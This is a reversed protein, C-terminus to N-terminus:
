LNAANGTPRRYWICELHYGTRHAFAHCTMFLFWPEVDGLLCENSGHRSVARNSNVSAM